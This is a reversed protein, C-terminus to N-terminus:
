KSIISKVWIWGEKRALDKDETKVPICKKSLFDGGAIVCIVADLVHSTIELDPLIKFDKENGLIQSIVIGEYEKTDKKFKRIESLRSILTAAPYVEIAQLHICDDPDWALPITKQTSDRLDQLLKLAAHATRAIRDAGVDLPKKGLENRIIQDTKRTFMFKPEASIPGGALHAALVEGLSTPWGLPADLALLVPQEKEENLWQSIKYVTGGKKKGSFVESITLKSGDYTGKALGINKDEVACDIGIIIM